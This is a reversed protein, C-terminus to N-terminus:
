GVLGGAGVVEVPAAVQLSQTDVALCADAGWELGGLLPLRM